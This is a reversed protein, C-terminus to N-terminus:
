ATALTPRCKLGSLPVTDLDPPNLAPVTKKVM